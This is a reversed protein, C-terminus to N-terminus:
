QKLMEDRLELVAQDTFDKGDFVIQTVRKGKSKRQAAKIVQTANIYRMREDSTRIVLLVEPMGKATWHDEYHKKMRFKETGDKLTRLHSDGSKLQVRYEIGTARGRKTVFELTGDVGEDRYTIPRFIQNVSGTLAQVEGVMVQEMSATSIKEDAQREADQVSQKAKASMAKELADALDIMGVEKDPPCFACRMKTWGHDKAHDIQEQNAKHKCKPCHYDRLREVEQAKRQLHDFTFKHIAAQLDKSVKANFYLEIEGREGHETLTLAALKGEHTRFDM